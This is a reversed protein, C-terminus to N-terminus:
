KCDYLRGIRCFYQLRMSMNQWVDKGQSLIQPNRSTGGDGGAGFGGSRPAFRGKPLYDALNGGPAQGSKLSSGSAYGKYGSTPSAGTDLRNKVFPRPGTGLRTSEGSSSPPAGAKFKGGDEGPSPAFQGSAPQGGGNPGYFVIPSASGGVGSSAATPGGATSREVTAHTRFGVSNHPSAPTGAVTAPTANGVASPLRVPPMGYYSSRPVSGDLNPDPAESPQSRVLARALGSILNDGSSTQRKPLAPYSDDDRSPKAESSRSNPDSSENSIKHKTYDNDIQVVPKGGPGQYTTSTGGNTGEHVVTTGGGSDPVV